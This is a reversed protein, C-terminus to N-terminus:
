LGDSQHSLGWDGLADLVPILTLGYPSYSYESYTQGDKEVKTKAVVGAAELQYMQEALVKASIGPLTRRLENFSYPRERLLWLARTKWKGSVIGITVLAPCHFLKRDRESTTVM